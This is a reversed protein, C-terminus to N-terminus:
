QFSLVGGRWESPKSENRKELTPHNEWLHGWKKELPARDCRGHQSNLARCLMCCCRSCAPSSDPCHAGTQCGQNRGWATKRLTQASLSPAPTNLCVADAVVTPGGTTEWCPPCEDGEWRRHMLKAFCDEQQYALTILVCLLYSKLFVTQLWKFLEINRQNLSQPVHKPCLCEFHTSAGKSNPVKAWIM